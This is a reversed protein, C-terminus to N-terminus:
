VTFQMIPHGTPAPAGGRREVTVMVADAGAVPVTTAYSGDPRPTFTRGREITKGHQFWLQYVRGAPPSPADKLALQGKGDEVRLVATGTPMLKRDIQATITTAGSGGGIEEVVVGIGVGIALVALALGTALRPTLRDFLRRRRKERPAELPGARLAAEENVTRMLEAKLSPPPEVQPVSRMLAATVPRMSEVESRCSECGSMHRELVEAELEPLAGLVYAAINDQYDEHSRANV